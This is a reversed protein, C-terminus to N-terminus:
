GEAEGEGGGGGLGREILEEDGDVRWCLGVGVVGGLEGSGGMGSGVGLDGGIGIGIGWGEARFGEEGGDFFFEGFMEGEGAFEFEGEGAGPRWEFEGSGIVGDDDGFPGGVADRAREEDTDFDAGVTFEDGIPEDGELSLEPLIDPDGIGSEFAALGEISGEESGLFEIGKAFALGGDGRLDIGGREFEGVADGCAAGEGAVIDGNAGDNAFPLDDFDRGLLSEEGDGHLREGEFIPGSAIEDFEAIEFAPAFDIALNDIFVFDANGKLEM